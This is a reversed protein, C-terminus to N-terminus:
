KSAKSKSKKPKGKKPKTESKLEPKSEFEPKPKSEFEPKPKSEFVPKSEPDLKLKTESKLEPKSEFVPKSEPVEEVPAEEVPAESEESHEEISFTELMEIMEVRIHSLKILKNLEVNGYLQFSSFGTVKILDVPISGAPILINYKGSRVFKRRKHSSIDLYGGEPLPANIIFSINGRTLNYVNFIENM